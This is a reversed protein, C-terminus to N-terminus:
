ECEIKHFLLGVTVQWESSGAKGSSLGEDTECRQQSILCSYQHSVLWLDIISHANTIPFAVLAVDNLGLIQYYCLYYSSMINNLIDWCIDALNYM